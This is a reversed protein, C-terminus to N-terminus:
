EAAVARTRVSRAKWRGMVADIVVVALGAGLVQWGPRIGVGFDFIMGLVLLPSVHFAIAIGVAEGIFTIISVVVTLM